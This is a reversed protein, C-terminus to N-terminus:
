FYLMGQVAEEEHGSDDSSYVAKKGAREKASLRLAARLNAEEAKTDKPYDDETLSKASDSYSCSM